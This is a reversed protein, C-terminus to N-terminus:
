PMVAQFKLASHVHLRAELHTSFFQSDKGTMVSNLTDPHFPCSPEAIKVKEIDGKNEKEWNKREKEDPARGNASTYAMIALSKKNKAKIENNSKLWWGPNGQHVQVIKRCEPCALDKKVM